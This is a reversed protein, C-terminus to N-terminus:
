AAGSSAACIVAIPIGEVNMRAGSRESSSRETPYWGATSSRQFPITSFCRFGEL